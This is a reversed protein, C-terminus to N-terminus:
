LGGDTVEKVLMPRERIVTLYSIEACSPTRMGQEWKQYTRLPICYRRTFEVQTLGLAARIKRIDVATM